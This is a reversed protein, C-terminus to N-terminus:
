KYFLQPYIKYFHFSKDYYLYHIPGTTTYEYTQTLKWRFYRSITDEAKIDVYFQIGKQQEGTYNEIKEEVAYYVSDVAASKNMIEFDSEYVLGEPTTISLKYERDYLLMGDDIMATYTGDRNESYFFENEQDDVIKAQCGRVPFFEQYLLTTTNSIILNQEANGKILSGEITLIKPEEDIDSYYPEICSNSILALLLFLGLLKIGIKTDM